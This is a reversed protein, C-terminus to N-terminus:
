SSSKDVGAHDNFGVVDQPSGSIASVENHPLSAEALHFGAGDVKSLIDSVLLSEIGSFSGVETSDVKWSSCSESTEDGENDETASSSSGRASDLSVEGFGSEREGTTGGRERGETSSISPNPVKSVTTSSGSSHPVGLFGVNENGEASARAQPASGHSAELEAASIASM